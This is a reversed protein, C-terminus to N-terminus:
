GTLLCFCIKGTQSDIQSQNPRLDILPNRREDVDLEMEPFASDAGGGKLVEALSAAGTM